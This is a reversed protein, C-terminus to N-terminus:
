DHIKICTGSLVVETKVAIHIYIYDISVNYM